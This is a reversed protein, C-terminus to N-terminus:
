SNFSAINGINNGNLNGNLVNVNNGNLIGNYSGCGCSNHDKCEGDSPRAGGCGSPAIREELMHIQFRQKTTASM